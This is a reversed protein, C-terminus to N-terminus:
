ARGANRSRGPVPCGPRSRSCAKASSQRAYEEHTLIMSAPERVEGHIHWIDMDHSGNSIRNFTNLLRVSDPQKEDPVYSDATTYAHKEKVDSPVYSPDLANELEYTYNTTLVADFPIRLLDKLLYNDIYKFERGFLEAYKAWRDKENEDTTVTARISYNMDKDSDLIGDDKTLRLIANLWTNTDGMCRNLGNGVLLVAPRKKTIDFVKPETCNM